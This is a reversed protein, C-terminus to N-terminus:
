ADLSHSMIILASSICFAQDKKEVHVSASVDKSLILVPLQNFFPQLHQTSHAEAHQQRSVPSAPVFLQCVRLRILGAQEKCPALTLFWWGSWGRIQALSQHQKSHAAM